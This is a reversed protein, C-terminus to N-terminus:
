RRGLAEAFQIYAVRTFITIAQALNSLYVSYVLFKNLLTENPFVLYYIDSSINYFASWVLLLRRDVVTVSKFLCTWDLELVFFHSSLNYAQRRTANTYASLIVGLSDCHQFVSCYSWTSSQVWHPQTRRKGSLSAVFKSGIMIFLVRWPTLLM